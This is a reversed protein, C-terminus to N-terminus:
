PIRAQVRAFADILRSLNKEARLAAVTGIVPLTGALGHAAAFGADVGGGFRDCDVGNPVYVLCREPLRWVERALGLLTLSPLMVTTRRLVLRRTWVRRAIQGQAEEPGFGDEMHLHRVRGMGQNAMAWEISGWNSTVLLDPRIEGLVRHFCRLNAWTEGKRVPVEVVRADLTESLLSMADTGGDMAVIRHRYDHGFHNALQAFRVQAGGVRFTPFVHLLTLTM